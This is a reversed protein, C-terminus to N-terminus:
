LWSKCLSLSLKCEYFLDIMLMATKHICLSTQMYHINVKECLGACWVVFSSLHLWSFLAHIITLPRVSRCIMWIIQMHTVSHTHTHRQRTQRDTMNSQWWLTFVYIFFFSHFWSSLHTHEAPHIVQLHSSSLQRIHLLRFYFLVLYM